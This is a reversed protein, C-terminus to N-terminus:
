QAHLPTRVLEWPKLGRARVKVKELITLMNQTKCRELEFERQKFENISKYDYTFNSNVKLEKLDVSIFIKWKNLPPGKVM